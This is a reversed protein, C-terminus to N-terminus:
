KIDKADDIEKSISSLQIRYKRGTMAANIAPHGIKNRDVNKVGFFGFIDKAKREM